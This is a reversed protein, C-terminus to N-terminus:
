DMNALAAVMLALACPPVALLVSVFLVATVRLRQGGVLNVAAAALGMAGTLLGTFGSAAALWFAYDGAETSCALVFVLISTVGPAACWM